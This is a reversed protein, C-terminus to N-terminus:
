SELFQRSVEIYLPTSDGRMGDADANATGLKDALALKDALTPTDAPTPNEAPAPIPADAPIPPPRPAPIPAPMPAPIPVPPESLPPKPILAPILADALTPPPALADIIFDVGANLKPAELEIPVPIGPANEGFVLFQVPKVAPLMMATETLAPPTVVPLERAVLLLEEAEPTFPLARALTCIPGLPIM